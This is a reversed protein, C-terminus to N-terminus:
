ARLRQRVEVACRPGAGPWNQRAFANLQALVRLRFKGEESLTQSDAADVVDESRM